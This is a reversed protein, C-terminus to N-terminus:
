QVLGCWSWQDGEQVVNWTQDLPLGFSGDYVRVKIRGDVKIQANTGDNSLESFRVKSLDVEFDTLLTHLDVGPALLNSLGPIQDIPIALETFLSRLMSGSAVSNPVWLQDNCTLDVASDSDFSFMAEAWDHSVAVPTQSQNFWFVGAAVGGLGILILASVIVIKFLKSSAFKSGGLEMDEDWDDNYYEGM